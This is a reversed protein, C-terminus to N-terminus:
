ARQRRCKHYPIVDYMECETVYQFYVEDERETKMNGWQRCGSDNCNYPCPTTFSNPVLTTTEDEIVAWEGKSKTFSAGRRVWVRDGVKRRKSM